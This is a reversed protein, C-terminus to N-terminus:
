RVVVQKTRWRSFAEPADDWGVVDSTVLEPRLEGAAVLEHLRPIAPRAHCRGTMFTVNATYMELLPVPTELEFFIGVSTCFGDGETSRLAAHLGEHTSSASVTVPFPGLRRPPPGEHVTAGLTEAIRLRGPDEDVYHVAAAGLCRAAEVAYLGISPVGGAVVLVEAGPRQELPGAVTRWGDPVNDSVSAVAQPDVGEPLEVLMHGAYPVRVVDTLAGGFDNGFPGLGYASRPPLTLCNGTRGAACRECTGCSVQFPVQVLAGTAVGEVDDGVELVEAVFEHGLAYSGAAPAAGAAVAGDLDCTAVAVPRVLADTPEQISPEAIERWEARGPEVFTLQLM